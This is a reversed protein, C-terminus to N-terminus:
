GPRSQPDFASDRGAPVAKTVVEALQSFVGECM